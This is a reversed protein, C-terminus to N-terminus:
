IEQFYVIYKTKLEGDFEVYGKLQSALLTILDLGFSKTQKKKNIFGVGNDEVILKFQTKSVNEIEISVLGKKDNPFAHKLSNTLLENIILGLPIATSLNVIVNKIDVVIQIKDNNNDFTKNISDVLDEIYLQFNIKDLSDESQYLSQHILAMSSIRTEGKKLFEYIDIYNNRRAQINLMSIILQLNNKVRHHVEKLLVKKENLSQNVENKSAELELVTDRLITTKEEIKKELIKKNKKQIQLGLLYSLYIFLLFLFTAICWFWITEYYKAEFNLPVVKIISENENFGHTSIRILLKHVGSQYRGIQFSNGKIEIWNTQDEFRYEITLNERNYYYGYSFNFTIIGTNKPIIYNQNILQISEKNDLVVKDIIITGKFLHKPLQDPNFWVFGKMCPFGIIGEPTHLSPNTGGGNFENTLLGDNKSYRYCYLFENNLIKKIAIQKNTVLLGDNTSIWINGKSDEEIAHTTTIDINKDNAKYVKNKDVLYLGEGYCGVWFRNLNIPKIYRANVNELGKIVTIKKLDPTYSYVGRSTPIILNNNISYIGNITKGLLKKNLAYETIFNKGKLFYISYADALYLQKKFYTYGIYEVPFSYNTKPYTFDYDNKNNETNWFNNAAHYYFKNKYPLVFRINTFNILNKDINIKKQKLNFKWGSPSHWTNKSIPTVNYCYNISNDINKNEFFIRNFLIPKLIALGQGRTGIFYINEKKSYFIFTIDDDGPIKFLYETYLSEKNYIIKYIGGNHKLYYNNNEGFININTFNTIKTNLFKQIKTDTKIKKKLIEGEKLITIKGNDLALIEEGYQLLINENSFNLNTNIISGKRNFITLQKNQPLYLFNKTLCASYSYNLLYKNMLSDIIPHKFVKKIIPNSDTYCFYSFTFIVSKWYKKPDIKEIKNNDIVYQINDPYTDLYIKGTLKDKGMRIIRQKNLNPYREDKVELAKNGDYRYLGLETGIWLFGYDDAICNKASLQKFGDDTNVWKLSYQITDSQCFALPSLIFFLLSLINKM